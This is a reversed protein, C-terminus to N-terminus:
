AILRSFPNSPGISSPTHAHGTLEGYAATSVWADFVRALRDWIDPFPYPERSLTCPGSVKLVANNRRAAFVKPLDAV